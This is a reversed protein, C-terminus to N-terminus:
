FQFNIPVNVQSEVPVGFTTAPKMRMYATIELAANGFGADKPTEDSVTCDSLYGDIDAMCHLLASGVIKHRLADRPYVRSIDEATPRVLWDPDTHSPLLRNFVAPATQETPQPAPSGPPPFMLADMAKCQDATLLAYLRHAAAAAARMRTVIVEAGAAVYDLQQPQSMARFAAPDISPPPPREAILDEYAELAARQQPNLNLQAAAKATFERAAAMRGDTGGEDQARAAVPLGAAAGSILLSIAIIM